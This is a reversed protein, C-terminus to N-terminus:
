VSSFAVFGEVQTIDKVMAVVLIVEVGPSKEGTGVATGARGRHLEYLTM